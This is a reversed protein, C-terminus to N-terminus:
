GFRLATIGFVPMALVSDRGMLKVEESSIDGTGVM